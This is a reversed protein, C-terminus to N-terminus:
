PIFDFCAAVWLPKHTTWGWQGEERRLAVMNLLLHAWLVRLGTVAWRSGLKTSM